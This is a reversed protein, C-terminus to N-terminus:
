VVKAMEAAAPVAEGSGRGIPGEKMEEVAPTGAEVTAM